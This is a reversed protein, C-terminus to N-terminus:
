VPQPKLFFRRYIPEVLVLVAILRCVQFTTVVPAGLQLVKATISMEAIGGPATALVLTLGQLGTYRSLVWAFGASLGILVLSGLAVSALWRPATHVFAPTFRVGLSVGIVLQAANSFETPIASLSINAMTLGMTVLLPGIFWPNPLHRRGLVWAGVGTALFLLVLGPGHVERTSAPLEDIGHLGSFQIAFPILLTVIMMRLSHTAAVLDTRAHHREALLTMESAGGLCGAFYTTSRPLQPLHRGHVRQLWFGFGLGLFMAWAICFLIAWWLSAVLQTIDPTFYLGLAAGITCQGWNRLPTSSETKARLMTAVATVLLPGIMWPLPTHLWLCLQASVWALALTLGARLYFNLRM